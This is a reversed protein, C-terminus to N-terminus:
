RRDEILRRIASTIDFVIKSSDSLNTPVDIQNGGAMERIILSEKAIEDEGVIVVYSSELRDADRLHAKLSKTNLSSEIWEPRTSM